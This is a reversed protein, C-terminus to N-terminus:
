CQKMDLECKSTQCCIFDGIDSSTQCYGQILEDMANLKGALYYDLCSLREQKKYIWHFIISIHGIQQVLATRLSLTPSM